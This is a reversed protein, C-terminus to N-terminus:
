RACLQRALDAKSIKRTTSNFRFHRRVTAVSCGIYEAAQQYSLMGVDPFASNLQELNDRYNEKERSM